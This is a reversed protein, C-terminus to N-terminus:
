RGSNFIGKPMGCYTCHIRWLNVSGTDERTSWEDKASLLLHWNLITCHIWTCKFTTYQTVTWVLVLIGQFYQECVHLHLTSNLHLHFRGHVHYSQFWGYKEYHSSQNCPLKEELRAYGSQKNRKHPYQDPVIVISIQESKWWDETLMSARFKNVRNVLRHKCRKWYRSPLM